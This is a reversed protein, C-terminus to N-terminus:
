ITVGVICVDDIQEFDDKWNDFETTLAQTQNQYDLSLLSALLNKFRGYKYKRCDEGGFQDAFGDSFIYIKDGKQTQILTSTFPAEKVYKGVPQRNGKYEDLLYGNALVSGSPAQEGDKLKRFHYLPCKAGSFQLELSANDLRCLAIDMGDQVEGQGKSLTAIVIERVKDLIAHTDLINLETVARNLASSCVMSVMAGPVGHGTCDASAFYTYRETNHVWYFDGAVIDKPKYLIVPSGLFRELTKREPLIADQIRKAYTISDMIEQNKQEVLQKQKQLLQKSKELKLRSIIGNKTLRYRIDVLFIFIISVMFTLFGGNALIEEVSLDSFLYFFLVNIPLSLYIVKFSWHKRWLLMMGGGILLAIYSFTHKQLESADMISWMYANQISILMFPIFALLEAIMNWRPRMFILFATIISISLRIVFYQFWTEANNFYDVISFLLNFVVAVWCIILHYRLVDKDMVKEWQVSIEKESM